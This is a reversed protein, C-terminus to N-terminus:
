FGARKQELTMKKWDGKELETVVDAIAGKEPLPLRAWRSEINTLSNIQRLQSARTQLFKVNRLMSKKHCLHFRM